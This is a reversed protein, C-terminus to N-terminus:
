IKTYKTYETYKTYKTDRMRTCLLNIRENIWENWEYLNWLRRQNLCGHDKTVEGDGPVQPAAVMYTRVHDPQKFMSWTIFLLGPTRIVVVICSPTSHRQVFYVFYVWFLYLHYIYKIYWIYMYTYINLVICVTLALTFRTLIQVFKLSRKFM